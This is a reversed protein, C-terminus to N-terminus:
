LLTRVIDFECKSYDNLSQVEDPAMKDLGMFLKGLKYALLNKKSNIDGVGLGSPGDINPGFLKAVMPNKGVNPNSTLRGAETTRAGMAMLEYQHELANTAPHIVYKGSIKKTNM